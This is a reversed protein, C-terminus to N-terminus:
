LLISINKINSFAEEYETPNKRINSRENTNNKFKWMNQAM